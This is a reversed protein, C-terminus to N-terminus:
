YNKETCSKEKANKFDGKSILEHSALLTDKAQKYKEPAYKDAKAFEARAISTKAQGMEKVPVLDGCFLTLLSVIAIVYSKFNIYHSPRGKWLIKEKM